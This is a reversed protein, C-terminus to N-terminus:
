ACLARLRAALGPPRTALVRVEPTGHWRAMAGLAAALENLLRPGPVVGDELFLANVAFIGQARHAKADLRGVLKGRHLIPLVFYGYRRKAAPTYCELTYDFGFWERARRRDWVVPDFPSLLATHTARLRGQLARELLEDHDRHVYGPGPWDQVRVTRLEGSALLPVLEDAAVAPQLRHYDAIWRSQTIGLARVADAIFRQRLTAADPAPIPGPPPDLRALVNAALDYVRQFRERRAVMLEGLVFWAELWRKEPKWDWWGSRPGSAGPPGSFDAAGVPGTAQIRALLTEMERRHQQRTSVARRFSWHNERQALWARHLGIDAAPVMCAEHAWCEALQGNALAQDLWEMPYDGIRARLVLHQSRALVHISDIQLLRMRQIADLLDQPRARRRVPQLLGQAALHLHRAQTASLVEAKANLPVSRCPLKVTHPAHYQPPM